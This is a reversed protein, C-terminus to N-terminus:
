RPVRSVKNTLSQGAVSRASASAVPAAPAAAWGDAAAAEVAVQVRAREPVQLAADPFM